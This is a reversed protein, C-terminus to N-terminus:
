YAGPMCPNPGGRFLYAITKTIDILDVRGNCDCDGSDIPDPAPGGLFMYNILFTVDDLQLPIGDGNPDCGEPPPPVVIDVSGHRYEVWQAIVSEPLGPLCDPSIGGTGPEGTMLTGDYDYVDDSVFLTDGGVNSLANDACDNWYFRVPEIRDSPVGPDVIFYVTALTGIGSYCLPEDPVSLTNAIAVIRLLGTGLDSGYEFYEWDCDVLLQGMEVHDVELVAPDFQMYLDFGGFDQDCRTMDVPVAVVQGPNTEPSNQISIEFTAWQPDAFSIAVAILIALFCALLGKM